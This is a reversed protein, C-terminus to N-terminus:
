ALLKEQLPGEEAAEACTLRGVLAVEVKQMRIPPMVVHQSREVIEAGGAEQGM